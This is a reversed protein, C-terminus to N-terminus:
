DNTDPNHNSRQQAAEIWRKIDPSFHGPMDLMHQIDEPRANALQKFSTIGNARLQAAYFEVLGPIQTLDDSINSGDMEPDAAVGPLLPLRRRPPIAIHEVRPERDLRSPMELVENQAQQQLVQRLEENRQALLKRAHDLDVDRQQRQRIIRRLETDRQDLLAQAEEIESTKARVTQHLMRLESDQLQVQQTLRNIRVLYTEHLENLMDIEELSKDINALLTETQQERSQLNKEVSQLSGQANEISTRREELISLLRSHETEKHSVHERAAAIDKNLIALYSEMQNILAEADRVAQRKNEAMSNIEALREDSDPAPQPASSVASRRNRLFWGAGIGVLFTIVALLYPLLPASMTM